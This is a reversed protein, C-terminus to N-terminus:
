TTTTVAHYALLVTLLAGALAASVFVGVLRQERLGTAEFHHHLPSALFVRRGFRTVATVNVIVSLTEAVFVIGLLPLLWLLREEAAVVVLACGLAMSGTDGMFVRAPFWNYVLFALLAGVIAGSLIAVARSGPNGAHIALIWIATFAVACCSGALGDVGDTLNVANSAAVIALTSLVVIGASHMDVVGAVPIYERTLGVSNLGLGVLVGIVAQLALKQRGLLGLTGGAGRGRVNALDDLLGLLAGAALAFVVFWGSRSHDFVAWMLVVIAVFVVGGMTPTGAKVAHSQPGYAAMRQGARRRALWGIAVPYVVVGLVLSLAFVILSRGM